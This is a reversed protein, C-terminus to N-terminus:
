KDKKATDNSLALLILLEEYHTQVAPTFNGKLANMMKLDLYFRELNEVTDSSNLVGSPITLEMSVTANIADAKISTSELYLGYNSLDIDNMYKIM